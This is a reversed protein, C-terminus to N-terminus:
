AAPIRDALMGTIILWHDDHLLERLAPIDGFAVWAAEMADDKPRVPPLPGEGLDFLFAQSIVRSRLSRGPHDFIRSSRLSAEIETHFLALSTEEELERVATQLWTEDPEMFGGPIAWLGHGVAGGRRILLLHGSRIALADGANSIKGKHPCSRITEWERRLIDFRETARFREIAELSPAPLQESFPFSDDGSFIAERIPTSSIPAFSESLVLPFGPFLRLYYSSNDKEHGVVCIKGSPFATIAASRISMAWELDDYVDPQLFFSVRSRESADLSALIMGEREADTFPNKSNPAHRASGLVVLVSSATSLAWRLLALHGNHFPEFRGILVAGDYQPDAQIDTSSRTM